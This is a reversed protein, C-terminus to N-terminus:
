RKSRARTSSPGCAAPACRPECATGGTGQCCHETLYGILANIADVDAQYWIFRGDRRDDILGANVLEKLHFSLTAPALKLRLAIAGPTLGTPAFEVLLRFISLRTEQALAGLATVVRAAQTPPSKTRVNAQSEM